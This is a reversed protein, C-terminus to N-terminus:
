VATIMLAGGNLLNGLPIQVYHNMLIAINYTLFAGGDPIM